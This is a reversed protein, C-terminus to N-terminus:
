AQARGIKSNLLKFLDVFVEANQIAEKKKVYNFPPVSITGGTEDTGLMSLYQCHTDSLSCWKMKLLQSLLLGLAFGLGSELVAHPPRDTTKDLLWSTRVVDLYEPKAPLGKALDVEPVYRTSLEQLKIFHERRLLAVDAPTLYREIKFPYESM